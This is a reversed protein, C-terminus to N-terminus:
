GINFIFCKRYKLSEANGSLKKKLNLTFIHMLLPPHFGVLLPKECECVFTTKAVCM